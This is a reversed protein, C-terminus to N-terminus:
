AQVKGKVYKRVITQDPPYNDRSVPVLQAQICKWDGGDRLYTDTYGTMGAVEEGGSVMVHKNVSWILAVDGFLTIREDRYDWYVIVDPNFGTAWRKLYEDRGRRLGETSVYVFDRHTIADHSAVDNTVFNHIFRANLAKLQRMAETESM